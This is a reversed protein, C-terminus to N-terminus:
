CITDHLHFTLTQNSFNKSIYVMVPITTNGSGAPSSVITIWHFDVGGRSPNVDSGLNIRCWGHHCMRAYSLPHLTLVATEQHSSSFINLIQSLIWFVHIWMSCLMNFPMLTHIRMSCAHLNLHQRFQQCVNPIETQQCTPASQTTENHILSSSYRSCLTKSQLTRCICSLSIHM